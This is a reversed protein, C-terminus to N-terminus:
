DCPYDGTGAPAHGGEQLSTETRGAWTPIPHVVPNGSLKRKRLQVIDPLAGPKPEYLAGQLNADGLRAERLNAVQLNAERLNAGRLNAGTLDAGKLVLRGQDAEWDSALLNQIWVEEDEGKARVKAAEKDLKEDATELWERHAALLKELKKCTLPTGNVFRGEWAESGKTAVPQQASDASPNSAKLSVFVTVLFTLFFSFFRM